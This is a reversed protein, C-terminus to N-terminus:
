GLLLRTQQAKKVIQRRILNSYTAPCKPNQLRFVKFDPGIVWKSVAGAGLGLITQREEMMQINYVNEWGQKAFGINAQDALIFRQRYLYYPHYDKEKLLRVAKWFADPLDGVAALELSQFDKRWAAARKPALTHVTIAEPDLLLVQQLSQWFASGDEGPLGLILDMNLSINPFERVIRVASFIDTVSHNRGIRRLTQEQMTQPNICIRTVGAENMAQLKELNVTEPRGAEVTFEMTTESALQHHLARILATFSDEALSTPTGGGVYISEVLFGYERILEATAEIELELANLFDKVQHRHTELSVAPFSCYHCRSPCFPIGAYVGIFRSPKFFKEQKLGVEILLDATAPMLAYINLLKERIEETTLGKDRLYHFIKTPRVGSLIGWPPRRRFYAGLLKIIGLRILEKLRQARDDDNYRVDLIERDQFEWVSDPLQLGPAAVKVWFDDSYDIVLKLDYNTAVIRAAPDLIKLAAEVNAIQKPDKIEINFNM